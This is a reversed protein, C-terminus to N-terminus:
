VNLAIGYKQAVKKLEVVVQDMRPAATQLRRAANGLRASSFKDVGAAYEDSIYILDKGLQVFLDDVPKVEVPVPEYAQMRQGALKLVGLALGTEIKWDSSFMLSPNNGAQTSNKSLTKLGTGASDIVPQMYEFYAMVDTPIQSAALAPPAAASSPRPTAPIPAAAVPAVAPPKLVAAVAPNGGPRAEMSFVVHYKNINNYAEIAIVNKGARLYGSVEYKETRKWGDRAQDSAVHTGNVWLQYTDDANMEVSASAPAWDLNVTKRFYAQAKEKPTGPAWIFEASSDQLKPIEYDTAGAIAPVWASDDFDPQTWAEPVVTTTLWSARQSVIRTTQRRLWADAALMHKQVDKYDPEALIVPELRQYAEMWRGANAAEVGGAYQDELFAARAERARNLRAAADRYDPDIDMVKQLAAFTETWRGDREHQEATGIWEDLYRRRSQEVEQVRQTAAPYGPDEAAAAKMVEVAENWRLDAALKESEARRTEHWANREARAKELLGTAGKYEPDLAVAKEFASTQDQWRGDRGASDGEELLQDLYGIRGAELEALREKAGPYEPEEVMVARVGDIAENWKEAAVLRPSQSLQGALWASRDVRTREIKATANRYTPDVDAAKQLAALSDSWRNARVDEAGKNLWEDMYAQRREEVERLKAQGNPFRPEVHLVKNLTAVADNWRNEQVQPATSDYLQQLYALRQNKVQVLRAGVDQFRPAQREVSALEEVALNWDGREAAARGDSYQQELQAALSPSLLWPHLALWTGTALVMIGAAAAVALRVRTPVAEWGRRPAASTAAGCSPCFRAVADIAGSCHVCVHEASQPVGAEIPTSM